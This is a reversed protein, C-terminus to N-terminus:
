FLLTTMQYIIQSWYQNKIGNKIEKLDSNGKEKMIELFNSGIVGPFTQKRALADPVKPDRVVLVGVDSYKKKDVEM